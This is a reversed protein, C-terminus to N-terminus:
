AVPHREHQNRFCAGRIGARQSPFAETPASVQRDRYKLSRRLSKFLVVLLTVQSGLGHSGTGSPLCGQPPLLGPSSATQVLVGPSVCACEHPGAQFNVSWAGGARAAWRRGQCCGQGEIVGLQLWRLSSQGLFFARSFAVRPTKM